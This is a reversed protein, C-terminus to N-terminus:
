SKMVAAMSTLKLSKRLSGLWTRMFAMSALCLVPSQRVSGLSMSTHPGYLACISANFHAAVVPLVELRHAQWHKSALAAEVKQANDRFRGRILDAGIKQVQGSFKPAKTQVGQVAALDFGAASGTCM